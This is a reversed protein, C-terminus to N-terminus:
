YQCYALGRQGTREDVHEPPLLDREGVVANTGQGNVNDYWDFQFTIAFFGHTTIPFSPGLVTTRWGYGPSYYDFVEADFFVWDARHFYPVSQAVQVWVRRTPDWKKLTSIYSTYQYGGVIGVDRSPLIYPATVDMRGGRCTVVNPYAPGYEGWTGANAAPVVVFLGMVAVATAILRRVVSSKRSITHTNM